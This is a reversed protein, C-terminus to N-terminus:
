RKLLTGLAKQSGAKKAATVVVLVDADEDYWGSEAKSLEGNRAKPSSITPGDNVPHEAPRTVQVSLGNLQVQIQEYRAGVIYKRSVVKSKLAAKSADALVDLDISSVSEGHITGRSAKKAAAPEEVKEAKEAKEAKPEAPKAKAEAKAQDRKPESKAARPEATGAYTGKYDAWPNTEPGQAEGGKAGACAVLSLSSLLSLLAINTRVNM